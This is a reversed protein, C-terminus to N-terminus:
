KGLISSCMFLMGDYFFNIIDFGCVSFMFWEIDQINVIVGFIWQMVEVVSNFDFDEMQECIIVIVLQFMERFLFVMCIVINSVGSIYSGFGEMIMGVDYGDVLVGVVDIVDLEYIDGIDEDVVYLNVSGVLILCFFFCIFCLVFM